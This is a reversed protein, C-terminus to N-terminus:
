LNRKFKKKTRIRRGGLKIEDLNFEPDPESEKVPESEKATETKKPQSQPFRPSINQSTDIGDKNRWASTMEIDKNLPQNAKQETPKESNPNETKASNPNETKPQPNSSWLWSFLNFPWVGNLSFGGKFKRTKCKTKKFKRSKRSKKTKM